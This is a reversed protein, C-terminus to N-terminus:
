RDISPSCVLHVLHAVLDLSRVVAFVEVRWCLDFVHVFALSHFAAFFVGGFTPTFKVSGTTPLTTANTFTVL